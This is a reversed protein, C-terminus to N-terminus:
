LEYYILMPAPLPKTQQISLLDNGLCINVLIEYAVICYPM